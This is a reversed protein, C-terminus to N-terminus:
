LNATRLNMSIGYIKGHPLGWGKVWMVQDMAQPSKPHLGLYQGFNDISDSLIVQVKCIWYSVKM